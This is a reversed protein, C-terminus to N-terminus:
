DHPRFTLTLERFFLEGKEPKPLPSSKMIAREVAMDYAANGSSKKLKASLVEGTPLQIVDFVAEPNGKLDIPLIWNGRVKVKIKEIYGSLANKQATAQERALQNKIDERERDVKLASQERALQAQMERRMEDDRPRVQPVPKVPEPKPKVAEPKPKLVPKPPPPEPKPKPKVPEPKPKVPEPKPKVPEPKPKAKPEPKSKIAIDPKPEPARPEPKPEVRPPPELVPAPKQEVREV